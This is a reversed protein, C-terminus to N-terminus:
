AGTRHDFDRVRITDDRWCSDCAHCALAISQVFAFVLKYARKNSTLWTTYLRRASRSVSRTFRRQEKNVLTELPREINTPSEKDQTPGSCTDDCLKRPM